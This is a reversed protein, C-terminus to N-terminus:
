RRFRKAGGAARRVRQAEREAGDREGLKAIRQAFNGGANLVAAIQLGVGDTHSVGGVCNIKM